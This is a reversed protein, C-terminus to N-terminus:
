IALLVLSYDDLGIETKNRWGELKERFKQENNLVKQLGKLVSEFDHKERNQISLVFQSNRSQAEIANQIEIEFENKHSADLMYACLIFHSLADSAVFLWCHENVAFEGSKFGQPQLEDITSVLYPPNAFDTLNIPSYQLTHLNWDYCFVVSDGYTMWKASQKEPWIAALTAFSGEDYFKKLVLGGKQKAIAEYEDYFPKWKVDIWANLEDFTTIPTEPVNDALYQSWRDAYIGGGGAGDSVVLVKDTARVSDENTLEDATKKISQSYLM